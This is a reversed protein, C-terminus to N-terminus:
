FIDDAEEFAVLGVQRKARRRFAAGCAGKSQGGLTTTFGRRREGGFLMVIM